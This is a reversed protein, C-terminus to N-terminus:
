VLDAFDDNIRQKSFKHRWGGTTLYFGALESRGAEALDVTEGSQATFTVKLLGQDIADLLYFLACDICDPIVEAVLAEADQMQMKKRWRKATADECDSRLAVDCSEVAMDRVHTILLNAFEEIEPTM